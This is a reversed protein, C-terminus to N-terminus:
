KHTNAPNRNHQLNRLAKGEQQRVFEKSLHLLSGIEDLTFEFGRLGKGLRLIVKEVESLKRLENLKSLEKSNQKKDKYDQLERLLSEEIKPLEDIWDTTESLMIVQNSGSENKAIKINKIKSMIDEPNLNRGGLGFRLDLILEQQPKISTTILEQLSERIEPTLSLSRASEFDSNPIDMLETDATRLNEYSRTGSDFVETLFKIDLPRHAFRSVLDLRKVSNMGYNKDKPKNFYNKIYEARVSSNGLLKELQDDFIVAESRNEFIDRAQTGLWTSFSKLEENRAMRFSPIKEPNKSQIQRFKQFRRYERQLQFYDFVMKKFKPPQATSMEIVLDRMSNGVIYRIKASPNVDSIEVVHKICALGATGVLDGWELGYERILFAYRLTVNFIRDLHNYIPALNAGDKGADKLTGFYAFFEAKQRELLTTHILKPHFEVESM